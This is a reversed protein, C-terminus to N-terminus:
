IRAVLVVIRKRKGGLSEREEVLRLIGCWRGGRIQIGVFKEGEVDMMGVIKTWEVDRHHLRRLLGVVRKGERFLDGVALSLVVEQVGVL